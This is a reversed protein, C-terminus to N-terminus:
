EQISERKKKKTEEQGFDFKFWRRRASAKEKNSASYVKELDESRLTHSHQINHSMSSTVRSLLLWFYDLLLYRRGGPLETISMSSASMFSFSMKRQSQFDNRRLLINLALFPEPVQSCFILRWYKHSFRGAWNQHTSLAIQIDKVTKAPSWHGVWSYFFFSSSGVNHHM